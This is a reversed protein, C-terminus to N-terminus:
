GAAKRRRFVVLGGALAGFVALTAPEPNPVGAAPGPSGPDGTGTNGGSAAYLTAHSLDPIDCGANALSFTSFLFGTVDNFSGDFFYARYNPGAQLSLVFPGDIPNDLSLEGFPQKPNFAFPGKFADSSGVLTWGSPVSPFLGGNLKGLLDTTDNGAFVPSMENPPLFSPLAVVDGPILSAQAASGTFVCFAVAALRVLRASM